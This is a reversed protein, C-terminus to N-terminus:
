SSDQIYCYVGKLIEAELYWAQIELRSLSGLRGRVREPSKHPQPLIFTTRQVEYGHISWSSLILARFMAVQAMLDAM